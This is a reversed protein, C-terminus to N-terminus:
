DDALELYTVEPLADAEIHIAISKVAADDEIEGAERLYMLVDEVTEDNPHLVDGPIQIPKM